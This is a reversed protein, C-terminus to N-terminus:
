NLSNILFSINLSGLGTAIDFGTSASYNGDNGSTIDNICDTKNQNNLLNYLYTQLNMNTTGGSTVTTFGMKKNIAAQIFYSLMGAMLPCALSTGGVGNIVNGNFYIPVGTNPDALACVDPTSRKGNNNVRSQYAPKSVYNSIGCGADSWCSEQRGNTSSYTM